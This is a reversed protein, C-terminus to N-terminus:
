ARQFTIGAYILLPRLLNDVAQYKVIQRADAAYSVSIPGVTEGIVPKDLDPALEDVSARLALEACARQVEVPVITFSVQFLGYSGYNDRGPSSGYDELVVGVRPWDLAQTILVRRGKWRNRYTQIMYETGKRLCQEKVPTALLAWAAAGRDSHYTDAATVSVYSEATALGTGDEVILAM